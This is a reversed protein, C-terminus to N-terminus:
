GLMPKSLPKAGFLRCTMKQVLSSGICQRIYAVSPTSSNFTWCELFFFSTIHTERSNGNVQNLSLSPLRFKWSWIKGGRTQLVTVAMAHLRQADLSRSPKITGYLMTMEKKKVLIDKQFGFNDTLNERFMFHLVKLYWTLVTRPTYYNEKNMGFISWHSYIWMYLNYEEM